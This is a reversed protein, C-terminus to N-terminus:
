TVRPLRVAKTPFSLPVLGAQLSQDPIINFHVPSIQRMVPVLPASKHVCCCVKPSVPQPVTLKLWRHWVPLFWKTCKAKSAIQVASLISTGKFPFVIESVSVYFHLLFKARPTECNGEEIRRV